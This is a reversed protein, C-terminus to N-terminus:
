IFLSIIFIFWTRGCTRCQDLVCMYSYSDLIDKIVLQNFGTLSFSQDQIRRSILNDSVSFKNQMMGLNYVMGTEAYVHSVRSVPLPHPRFSYPTEIKKLDSRYINFYPPLKNHYLKFLFKLIILQFLDKVKLLNLEKLLPESHAIYHSYTITKIAKKKIKDVSEGVQGSLLSGYNM